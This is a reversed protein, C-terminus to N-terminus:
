VRYSSEIHERTIVGYIRLRTSRHAGNIFLVECGSAMMKEHAEQLTAIIEVSATDLRKAPIRRLDISLDVDVDPQQDLEKLHRALDTAPLLSNKRQDEADTLLIWRPEQKLLEGAASRSIYRDHKIIHREMVSAVGIGRLAKSMPTNRYDLGRSLMLHRYISSKKFVVRTVLSATIVATMGPLIIKQNTTLELLFILAALPAQLTAAMMAAMGLLAYVSASALDPFLSAAFLGIASGASAGIFLTPGILGAPIGLGIAAASTLTKAITLLLVGALGIQALLVHNVTDYGTGMIQPLFLAVCGTVAGALLTRIWIAQSLFLSSTFLTIQIFAASICGIIGGMILVIPIENITSIKFDPVTFATDDGFVIRTLTTSSVAAIIVPTFGIVSYEMMVVEMAFIVGALPTNFAAAIAAAAGCGILIRVGNNPVRLRRGLVSGATAGLHVSPGERGVSHGSLLSISAAIFQVLANKPPLYGQHYDLREIVHVVGVNRHKPKVLRLLLGVLLGGGVCLWFRASRSLGEFGEVNGDPMIQGAAAEMFLRFLVIVGGAILGCLLGLFALLPLGEFDSSLRVQQQEIFRGYGDRLFELSKFAM